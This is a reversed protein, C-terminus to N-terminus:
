PQWHGRQQILPIRYRGQKGRIGILIPQRKCTILVNKEKHVTVGNKTFVLITGDDSTKGVSMLSTPFQEFTDAQTAKTSLQPFPLNTVHKASSTNGNAVRVQKTSAQLIPMQARKRDEKSIYHGDAGSNYTILVNNAKDRPKTLIGNGEEIPKARWYKSEPCLRFSM